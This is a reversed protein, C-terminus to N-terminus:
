QKKEERRKGPSELKTCDVIRFDRDVIMQFAFQDADRPLM